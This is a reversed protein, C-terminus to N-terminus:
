RQVVRLELEMWVVASRASRSSSHENRGSRSDGRAKKSLNVERVGVCVNKCPARGKSKVALQVQGSQSADQNEM